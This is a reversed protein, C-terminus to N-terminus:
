GTYSYFCKAVNFADVSPKRVNVSMPFDPKAVAKVHPCRAKEFGSAISRSRIMACCDVQTGSVKDFADVEEEIWRVAWAANKPAFISENSVAGVFAFINKLCRYCRSAIVFCQDLISQLNEM